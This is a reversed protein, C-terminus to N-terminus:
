QRCLATLGIVNAMDLLYSAAVDISWRHGEYVWSPGILGDLAPM